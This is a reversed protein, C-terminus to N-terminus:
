KRPKLLGEDIDLVGGRSKKLDGKLLRRLARQDELPERIAAEISERQKESMPLPQGFDDLPEFVRSETFATEIKAGERRKRDVRGLAKLENYESAAHIATVDPHFMRAVEADALYDSRKERLRLTDGRARYIAAGWEKVELEWDALLKQLKAAPLQEAMEEPRLLREAIDRYRGAPPLPDPEYSGDTPPQFTWVPLLPAPVPARKLGRKKLAAAWRLRRLVEAAVAMEQQVRYVFALWDAPPPARRDKAAGSSRRTRRESM